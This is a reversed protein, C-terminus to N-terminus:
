LAGLGGERSDSVGYITIRMLFDAALASTAVLVAAISRLKVDRNRIHGVEHALVGELERDDMLALLGSTVAVYAHKPDRGAAFANPSSDGILYLDPTPPPGAAGPPTRARGSGGTSGPSIRSRGRSRM